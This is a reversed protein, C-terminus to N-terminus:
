FFGARHLLIWVLNLRILFFSLYPNTMLMSQSMSQFGIWILGLRTQCLQVLSLNSKIRITIDEINKLILGVVNFKRHHMVCDILNLYLERVVDVNGSKSYITSRIIKNIVALHTRLGTITGFKCAVLNSAYYRKWQAQPPFHDGGWQDLAAM